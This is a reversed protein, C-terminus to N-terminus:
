WRASRHAEHVVIALVHQRDRPRGSAGGAPHHTHNWSSGQLLGHRPRRGRGQELQLLQRGPSIRPVGRHPRDSQGPSLWLRDHQQHLHGERRPEPRLRFLREALRQRQHRPDGEQGPNRRRHLRPSLPRGRRHASRRDQRQPHRRQSLQGKRFWGEVPIRRHRHHARNRSRGRAEPARHLRFLQQCRHHRSDQGSRCRRTAAGRSAFPGPPLRHWIRIRVPIRNRAGAIPYM